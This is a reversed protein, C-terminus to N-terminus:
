DEDIDGFLFDILYLVPVLLILVPGFILCGILLRRSTFIKYFLDKTCPEKCVKYGEELNYRVRKSCYLWDREEKDLYETPMATVISDSSPEYITIIDAGKFHILHKSRAYSCDEIKIHQYKTTCMHAMEKLDEYSASINFRERLRRRTHAGHHYKDRNQPTPMPGCFLDETLTVKKSNKDYVVIWDTNGYHIIKLSKNCSLKEIHHVRPDQPGSCLRSFKQLLAESLPM